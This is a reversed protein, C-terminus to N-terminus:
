YPQITRISFGGGYNLAVTIIFSVRTLKSAGAFSVQLVSRCFQGPDTKLTLKLARLVSRRLDTKRPTLKTLRTLKTPLLAFSIALGTVSETVLETINYHTM